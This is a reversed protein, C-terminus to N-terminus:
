GQGYNLIEEFDKIDVLRGKLVTLANLANAIDKEDETKFLLDIFYDEILKSRQNPYKRGMEEWVDSDIYIAVRKKM